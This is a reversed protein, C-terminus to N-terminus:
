MMVEKGKETEAGKILMSKNNSFPNNLINQLGIPNHTSGKRRFSNPTSNISSKTTLKSPFILSTQTNTM